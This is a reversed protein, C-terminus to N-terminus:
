DDSDSEDSVENDVPDKYEDQSTLISEDIILSVKLPVESGDFWHM